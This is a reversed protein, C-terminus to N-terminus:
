KDGGIYRKDIYVEGINSGVKIGEAEILNRGRKAQNESKFIVLTGNPWLPYIGIYGDLAEIIKLAKKTAEVEADTNEWPVALNPIAVTYASVENERKPGVQPPKWLNQREEQPINNLEKEIKKKAMRRKISSMLKAGKM